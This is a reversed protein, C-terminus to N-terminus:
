RCCPPKSTPAPSRRSPSTAPRSGPTSWPSWGWSRSGRPRRTAPCRGPHSSRATSCSGCGCVRPTRADLAAPQGDKRRLLGRGPQAPGRDAARGHRTRRHDLRHQRRLPATAPRRHGPDERDSDRAPDAAPAAIPNRRQTSTGVLRVARRARQHHSRLLSDPESDETLVRRRVAEPDPAMDFLPLQVTDEDDFGTGAPYPLRNKHRSKWPESIAKGARPGPASLRPTVRKKFLM